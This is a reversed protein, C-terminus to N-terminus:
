CIGKVPKHVTPQRQARQQRRLPAVLYDDIPLFYHCRCGYSTAAYSGDMVTGSPPVPSQYRACQVKSDCPNSPACRSESEPLQVRQNPHPNIM